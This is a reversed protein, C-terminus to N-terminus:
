KVTSLIPSCPQLFLHWWSDLRQLPCWFWEESVMLQTYNSTCPESSPLCVSLVRRRLFMMNISLVDQLWKETIVGLCCSTAGFVTRFKIGNKCNPYSDRELNTEIKKMFEIANALARHKFILWYRTSIILVFNLVIDTKTTIKIIFPLDDIDSSKFLVELLFVFFVISAISTVIYWWTIPYKWSYSFGQFKGTEDDINMRFPLFGLFQCLRFFSRLKELTSM